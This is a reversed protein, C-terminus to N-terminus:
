IEQERGKGMAPAYQNGKLDFYFVDFGASLCAISVFLLVTYQGVRVLERM